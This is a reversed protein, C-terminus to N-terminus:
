EFYSQDIAIAGLGGGHTGGEGMYRIFNRRLSTNTPLVSLDSVDRTGFVRWANGFKELEQSSVIHFRDAFSWLNSGKAFM